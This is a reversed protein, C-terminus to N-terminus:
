GGVTYYWKKILERRRVPDSPLGLPRGRADIVVGLAGGTVTVTGSRGPGLGADARSHPGMGLRATQGSPLPLIELGGFKVDARAETGDSYTLKARLVPDGYNASAVVSVVTGLGIFAGSDIVQVPLYNNREGAASLLPLLNNQDILIPMIGVPQIADLLLLLSQGLSVGDSIVGGGALILDLPPM